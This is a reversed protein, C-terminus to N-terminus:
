RSSVSRDCVGAVYKLVNITSGFVTPVLKARRVRIPSDSKHALAAICGANLPSGPAIVPATDPDIVAAAGIEFEAADAAATVTARATITTPTACLDKVTFRAIAPAMIAGLTTSSPNAQHTLAAIRGTDFALGPPTVATSEEDVATAAGIEFHDPPLKVVFFRL